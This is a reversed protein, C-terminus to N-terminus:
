EEVDYYSAWGEPLNIEHCKTCSVVPESEPAHCTLCNENSRHNRHPNYIGDANYSTVTGTVSNGAEVVDDWQSGHCSLCADNPWDAEVAESIDVDLAAHEAVIGEEPEATEEANASVNAVGLLVAAGVLLSFALMAAQRSAPVRKQRTEM